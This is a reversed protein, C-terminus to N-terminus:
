TASHNPTQHPWWVYLEAELQLNSLM